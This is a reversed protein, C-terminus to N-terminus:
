SKERLGLVLNGYQDVRLTQGPRVVITTNPYEVLAPGGISTEKHCLGAYVPTAIREAVERWYVLREGFPADTGENLDATPLSISEAPAQVTVRLATMVAGAAAYGTGRGFRAEYSANFAALLAIAWEEDVAGDPLVTEVSHVQLPFKMDARRQVAGIDIGALRAYERAADELPELCDRLSALDFPTQFHVNKAFTKLRDLQPLGYASWVSAVNGLPFVVERVGIGKGYLGAHAGSAGGYGWLVFSRPDQGRQVTVRRILDEMRSDVIEVIGAACVLPELGLSRGLAAVGEYAADFDLKLGGALPRDPNLIGLVLDADTVTM